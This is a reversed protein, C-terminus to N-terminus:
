SSTALTNSSHLPSAPAPAPPIDTSSASKPTSSSTTTLPSSGAPRPTTVLPLRRQPPPSPTLVRMTKPHPGSHTENATYIITKKNDTRVNAKCNRGLCRWVIDRLRATNIKIIFYLTKAM